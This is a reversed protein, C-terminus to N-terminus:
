PIRAPKNDAKGWVVRKLVALILLGVLGLFVLKAVWFVASVITAWLSVLGLIALGGVILYVLFPVRFGRERLLEDAM